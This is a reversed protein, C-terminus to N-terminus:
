SIIMSGANNVYTGSTGQIARIADDKRGNNIIDLQTDVKNKFAEADRIQKEITDKSLGNAKNLKKELQSITSDLTKSIYMLEGENSKRIANSILASVQSSVLSLLGFIASISASVKGATTDKDIVVSGLLSATAAAVSVGSWIKLIVKINNTKKIKEQLKKIDEEKSLDYGDIKDMRNYAISYMTPVAELLVNMGLPDYGVSEMVEDADNLIGFIEENM